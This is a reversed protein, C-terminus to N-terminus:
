CRRRAIEIVEVPTGLVGSPFATASLGDKLRGRARHRRLHLVIYVSPGLPRADKGTVQIGWINASGEAMVREPLAQELAGAVVHPLFHGIVHRAAVPAPHQM